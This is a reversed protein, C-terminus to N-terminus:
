LFFLSPLQIILGAFAPEDRGAVAYQANDARNGAAHIRQAALRLVGARHRQDVAAGARGIDVQRALIQHAGPLDDGVAVLHVGGAAARERHLQGAHM